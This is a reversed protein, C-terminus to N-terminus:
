WNGTLDAKSQDESLVRFKIVKQLSGLPKVQKSFKNFNGSKTESFFYCMGVTEQYEGILKLCDGIVLIPSLTDLGSLVYPANSPIDSFICGDLDLFVFEEECDLKNDMLSYYSSCNVNSLKRCAQLAFLVIYCVGLYYLSSLGTLKLITLPLDAFYCKWAQKSVFYAGNLIMKWFLWWPICDRGQPWVVFATSRLEPTLEVICLGLKSNQTITFISIFNLSSNMTFELYNIFLLIVFSVGLQGPLSSSGICACIKKGRTNDSWLWCSCFILLYRLLLFTFCSKGILLKLLYCSVLPWLKRCFYYEISM